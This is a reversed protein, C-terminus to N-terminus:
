GNDAFGQLLPIADHDVAYPLQPCMLGLRSKGITEKVLIETPICQNNCLHASLYSNYEEPTMAVKPAPTVPVCPIKYPSTSDTPPAKDRTSKKHRPCMESISRFCTGRVWVEIGTCVTLHADHRPTVLLYITTIMTCYPSPSRILSGDVYHARTWSLNKM